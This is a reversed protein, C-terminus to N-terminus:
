RISYVLTGKMDYENSHGVTRAWVELTYNAAQTPRWPCTPRTTYGTTLDQWHWGYADFTGARFKYEVRGGGTAAATLTIAANVPHPSAPTATLSVATLPPDTITYYCSKMVDYKATHGVARAWVTLTYKAVQTPQWTCTATTTYGTLDSWRGACCVRFKYEVPGACKATATLTIATHVPQSALPATTLTAATVVPTIVSFVSHSTATRGATAVTIHGSTARLPVVTTITTDNVVTFAAPTGNFTVATTGTFRSGKITVTAGMQGSGPTVATIAPGPFDWLALGDDGCAALHQGDPTFALGNVASTFDTLLQLCAGDAVRWLKLAHDWGGSALMQGDPTFALAMIETHHAAITQLRAGDSVRRVDITGNREGNMYSAYGTALTRSDPSFALATINCRAETFTRLLTGDSVRWLNVAGDGLFDWTAGYSGTALTNGDPSLALCRLNGHPVTITRLCAGDTLRWVKVTPTGGYWQGSGATILTKGDPTFALFTVCPQATLSKLCVGDSARLLTVPTGNPNTFGQGAIALLHADASVAVASVTMAAAYARLGAGDSLRWCRAPGVGAGHDGGGTVLLQGDASLAMASMWYYPGHQTGLCAGDSVRWGLAIADDSSSIVTQGDPTFALAAIMRKPGTLTRLWAGDSVRWLTIPYATTGDTQMTFGSAALTQGDPALAMANMWGYDSTIEQVCAGDSVRLFKILSGNIAEGPGGVLLTRSDPTFALANIQQYATDPVTYLCAADSVQWLQVANTSTYTGNVWDNLTAAAALFQGDPSFALCSIWFFNGTITQLCAGDSVRWCQISYSQSSDATVTNGWTALTQGDPSCVIGAFQYCPETITCLCAGDSVRYCKIVGTVVNTAYDETRITVAVTQRDASVACAGVLGTAGTSITRLLTGDAACLAFEGFGRAVVIPAQGQATAYGTFAAQHWGMHPAQWGPPPALATFFGDSTATWAATSVSIPGSTAGDPVTATITTADVISFEAPTGNFAVATAATFGAGSITVTTGAAGCGPTFTPNALVTFPEQSYATGGPTSVSILGSSAYDPVTATILSDTVVTFAMPMDNLAVTDAGTFYSGTIALATRIPGSTPTFATITPPPTVQASVFVAGLGCALLLLSRLLSLTTSRHLFSAVM